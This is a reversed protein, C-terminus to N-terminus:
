SIAVGIPQQNKLGFSRSALLIMWPARARLRSVPTSVRDIYESRSDRSLVVESWDDSFPPEPRFMVVDSRM